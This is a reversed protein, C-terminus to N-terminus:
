PFVPPRDGGWLRHFAMGPVLATTIPEVLTDSAVTARGEATHGTVVRRVNMSEGRPMFFACSASNEARGVRVGLGGRREIGIVLRRRTVGVATPAKDASHQRAARRM